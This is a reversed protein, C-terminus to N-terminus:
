LEDSISSSNDYSKPFYSSFNKDSDIFSERQLRKSYKFVSRSIRDPELLTVLLTQLPADGWRYYFISGNNDIKEIYMKVDDRKWFKTDTIFYNNYYMIPMDVNLVSPVEHEEKNENIKYLDKIKRHIPNNDDLQIQKDIFMGNNIKDVYKSDPMIEKFFEKMGYNCIGCDVHIINSMYVLERDKMIKFLDNVIPEEIISDDDLRMVYEYDESYKQFNKIWFNCMLRYNKNRWYPVPQLDVIKNLREKDIHSPLEFDSKDIEKFSVCFRNNERIGSIIEEQSKADYDGEHLIIVPYNYKKNFNKFLFYLSTKLYTKREINNQTLIFIACKANSSM